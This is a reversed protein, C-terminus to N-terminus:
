PVVPLDPGSSAARAGRRALLIGVEYLVAMPVAMMAQTYPDPPTFFAAIVFAGVWFHGRYRGFDAPEVLELRAAAMMVLPLQFVVGLGFLLTNLFSLWPTILAEHRIQNLGLETLFYYGYPVMMTYGLTVGGLFLALSLPFYRYIVRRESRYLGAAVFAWVQWLVFPGAVFLSAYGCVKMYFFFTSVGDDGRMSPVPERMKGPSVEGDLFLAERREALRRAVREEGGADGPALEARLEAELGELEAVKRSYLEENLWVRAKQEYPALAFAVVRDRFGWAALFVVAVAIFSRLLRSRLEELHEGLTMRHQEVEDLPEQDAQVSM